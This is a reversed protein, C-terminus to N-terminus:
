RSRTSSIDSKAQLAYVTHEFTPCIKGVDQTKNAFRPTVQRSQTHSRSFSLSLSTSSACENRNCGRRFTFCGALSRRQLPQGQPPREVLRYAPTTQGAERRWSYKPQLKSLGVVRATHGGERSFSRNSRRNLWDFLRYEKAAFAEFLQGEPRSEIPGIERKRANYLQRFILFLCFCLSIHLFMVLLTQHIRVM